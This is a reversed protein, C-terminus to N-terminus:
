PTIARTFALRQSPKFGADLLFGLLVQDRPATITEVREVRLAGLNAFLQSLLARGVGRQAYEPDVGITDIVAAPETRGFDGIDARAMLYGVITDDLRATLSVRIASDNMAEDLKGQMYDARDRGTITRDIRAIAPLDQQKMSRVDASDRSLKEFDNAGSAGYNIELGPGHGEPANVADDRGPHYAGGAVPCELWRDTSLTFGMADFWRLMDHDRWNASTLIEILGRKRASNMLAQLLQAGVGGGRADVRVGVIELRLGPQPHGFEGVLIRALVYGLLSGAETAALQLHLASERRAAALRREIYDRRSHGGIAADIVVVADLDDKTLARITINKM